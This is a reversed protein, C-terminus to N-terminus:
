GSLPAVQALTGVLMAVEKMTLWCATSVVQAQSTRADHCPAVADMDETYADGEDGPADGLEDEDVMGEEADDVAHSNCPPPAQM